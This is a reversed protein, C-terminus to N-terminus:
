SALSHVHGGDIRLTMATCFPATALYSVAEAIEEPEGLRGLLVGRRQLEHRIAGERDQRNQERAYQDMLGGSAELLPTRTM